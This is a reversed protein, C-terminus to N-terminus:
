GHLLRGGMKATTGFPPLDADRLFGTEEGPAFATRSDPPALLRAIVGRTNVRVRHDERSFLQLADVGTGEFPEISKSLLEALMALNVSPARDRASIRSGGRIRSTTM